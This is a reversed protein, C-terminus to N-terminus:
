TVQVYLRKLKECSRLLMEYFDGRWLICQRIQLVELKPFISQFYGMKIADLGICVFYLHKVATFEDIHWDMYRLPQKEGYYYSLFETCRNFASSRARKNTVDDACVTYIGDDQIFKEAGKFNRRYYEGAVKQMATCTQAFSHLDVLSLYDFIEDCCDITLKFIAASEIVPQNTSQDSSEVKSEISVSKSNEYVNASSSQGASADSKDQHEKDNMKVTSEPAEGQLRSVTNNGSNRIKFSIRSNRNEKLICVLVLM